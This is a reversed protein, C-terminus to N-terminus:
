IGRYFKRSSYCRVMKFDANEALVKGVGLEYSKSLQGVEDLKSIYDDIVSKNANYEAELIAKEENISPVYLQNIM